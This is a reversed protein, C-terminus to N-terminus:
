LSNEAGQHMSFRLYIIDSANPGLLMLIITFVDISLLTTLRPGSSSGTWFIALIDYRLAIRCGSIDIYEAETGRIGDVNVLFCEGKFRM